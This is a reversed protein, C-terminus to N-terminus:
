IRFAEELLFALTQQGLTTAIYVSSPASSGLKTDNNNAYKDKFEQSTSNLGQNDRFLEVALFDLPQSIFSVSNICDSLELEYDKINKEFTQM